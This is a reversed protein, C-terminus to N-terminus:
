GPKGHSVHGTRGRGMKYWDCVVGCDCQGEKQEEFVCLQNGPSKIQRKEM